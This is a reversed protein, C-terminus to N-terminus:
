VIYLRVARITYSAYGNDHLEDEFLPVEVYFLIPDPRSLEEIPIRHTPNSPDAPPLSSSLVITEVCQGFAISRMTHKSVRISEVSGVSSIHGPYTTTFTWDYPKAQVVKPLPNSSSAAARRLVRILNPYEM